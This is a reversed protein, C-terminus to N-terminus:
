ASEQSLTYSHLSGSTMVKNDKNDQCDNSTLPSSTFSNNHIDGYGGGGPTLITLCDHKSVQITNKGGLSVIKGEVFTGDDVNEKSAFTLLNVGRAGPLGGALGYPQFARRESLISM